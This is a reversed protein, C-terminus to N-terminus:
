RIIKSISGKKQLEVILHSIGRDKFSGSPQLNELKFFVKPNRTSRILPTKRFLEIPRSM